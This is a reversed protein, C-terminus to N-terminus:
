RVDSRQIATLHVEGMGGAGLLGIHEYGDPWPTGPALDDLAHAMLAGVALGSLHPRLPTHNPEPQETM